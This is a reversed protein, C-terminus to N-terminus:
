TTECDYLPDFLPVIMTVELHQGQLCFSVGKLKGLISICSLGSLIM